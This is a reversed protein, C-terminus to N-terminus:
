LFTKKSAPECDDIINVYTRKSEILLIIKYQIFDCLKKHRLTDCLKRKNSDWKISKQICINYVNVINLNDSLISSM